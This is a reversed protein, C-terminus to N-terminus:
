SRWRTFKIEGTELAAAAMAEPDEATGDAISRLVRQWLSDEASHAAEPNWAAQRIQEIAAQVDATNM